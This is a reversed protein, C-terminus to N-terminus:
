MNASGPTLMTTEAWDTAGNNTDAGNPIRALSKDGSATDTGAPSSMERLEFSTGMYMATPVDGEYSLADVVAHTATNFIAVGDPAGNQISNDDITIRTATAAVTVGSNAVVLYGDAALTGTLPVVMYPEGTSSGNVFVLELGDLTVSAGTPNYIEVFETMDTSAQDYDIENIVLHDVVATTSVTVMATVSDLGLTATVTSTAASDGATFDFSASLEGEPVVVVTPVTGGTTAGLDVMTGGPPAPIDLNVTLSVTAGTGVTSTAPTISVVHPTETLGIVRVEATLMVGDLSATITYPTPSAVVGTVLIPASASGAPITTDAVVIGVASATVMVVTDTAAPRSLSVTLPTPTTAGASGERVYSLAPSLSSLIASGALVDDASRPLLKNAGNRFSVVGTISTFNEGVSPFPDTLYLHDDVRLGAEIVYENTPASDGAGPTPNIETVTANSLHVLVGELAEARAGGTAIEAATVDVPDPVSGGPTVTGLTPMGLQMQGFFDSVTANAIDVRDGLAVTPAAGTYVFVGSNDAGVYAASDPDVQAFFGNTALATVVVGATSITAGVAVVGTKIDYITAPCAAAGPNSVSPCADCADGKMDSDADAQDENRVDPCNDTTNPHGDADRDNPDPASCTTTDPNLPCVDCADGVTDVDYDAQMGHDVPRIPNFVTPCNDTSDEIGDGDGDTTEIDGTYLSSGDVSASPLTRSPLCSPENDPDGGCFFLPYVGANATSLADFTSGTERMACVRKGTECVTIADCADGMPLANVVADDGYLAQGGRLVLVVDEPNADIVARHDLNTAGNFIAIDAVMGVSLTGLVDDVALAAASDRTAMLWLQEDTFYEGYYVANLEDACRLERLMNMSGTPTWDTGLAIPVGLRAYETVRATDGYLTVNSRPSWILASGGSALEAIDPPLLAIGHILATQSGVLDHEGEHICLFENRAEDDIGESVHPTYADEDAVNAATEIMGYSCGSALQTGDSDDLPFTDYNVQPQNLGEMNARDLNRLFGDVAGSANTSTAGGFVFRLEGWTQNNNSAMGPAPISTHGRRGRRWDHRQEYREDSQTYPDNQTFTLHDHANILGPSVVGEPCVVTTAGAADAQGSCDCGTCAITGGASVLVQGGRYVVGPTLVNGTILLAGSGATVTCTGTAPPAISEGPCHMITPGTMGADGGMDIGSDTGGDPNNVPPRESDGCAALLLSAVVLISVSSSKVLSHM